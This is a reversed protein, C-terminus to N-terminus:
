KWQLAVEYREGDYILSEQLQKMAIEEDAIFNKSSEVIGIPELEWFRKLDFNLEDDISRVNAFNAILKGDPMYKSEVNVKGSIMWGFISNMAIPSSSDRKKIGSRLVQGWPDSGLLIDISAIQRPYSDALKLGKLYQYKSVDVPVAELSSCVKDVAWGSLKTSNNGDM